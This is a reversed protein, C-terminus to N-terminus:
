AIDRPMISRHSSRLRGVRRTALIAQWTGRWGMTAGVLRRARDAHSGQLGPRGHERYLWLHTASGILALHTL